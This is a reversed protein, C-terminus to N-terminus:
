FKQLKFLVICLAHKSLRGKNVIIRGHEVCHPGVLNFSQIMAFLGVTDLIAGGACSFDDDKVLHICVTNILGARLHEISKSSDFVQQYISSIYRLHECFSWQRLLAEIYVGVVGEVIPPNTVQQAGGQARTFHYWRERGHLPM